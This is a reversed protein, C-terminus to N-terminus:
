LQKRNPKVVFCFKMFCEIFLQIFLLEVLIIWFHRCKEGQAQEVIKNFRGRGGLGGGGTMFEDLFHKCM